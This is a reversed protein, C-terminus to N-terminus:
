LSSKRHSQCPETTERKEILSKTASHRAEEMRFGGMWISLCKSGHVSVQPIDSDMDTDEQLTDDLDPRERPPLYKPIGEKLIKENEM